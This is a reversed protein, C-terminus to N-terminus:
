PLSNGIVYEISNSEGLPGFYRITVKEGPTFDYNYYIDKIDIVFESKGQLIKIERELSDLSPDCYIGLYRVKTGDMRKIELWNSRFKHKQIEDASFSLYFDPIKMATDSMNKCILKGNLSENEFYIDLVLEVNDINYKEVLKVSTCSCIFFLLCFSIRKQM